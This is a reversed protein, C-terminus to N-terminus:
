RGTRFKFFYVPASAGPATLDAIRDPDPIRDTFSGIVWGDEAVERRGM